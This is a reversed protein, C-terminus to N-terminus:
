KLCQEGRRRHTAKVELSFGFHVCFFPKEKVLRDQWFFDKTNSGEATDSGALTERWSRNGRPFAGMDTWVFVPVEETGRTSRWRLEAIAGERQKKEKKRGWCTTTQPTM